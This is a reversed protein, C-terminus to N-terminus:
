SEKFLQNGRTAATAAMPMGSLRVMEHEGGGVGGSDSAPFGAPTSFEDLFFGDGSIATLLSSAAREHGVKKPLGLRLGTLVTSFFMAVSHSVVSPSCFFM